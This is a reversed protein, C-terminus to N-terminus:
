KNNEKLYAENILRKIEDYSEKVTYSDGRNSADLHTGDQNSLPNFSQILSFNVVFPRNKVKDTLEIFLPKM